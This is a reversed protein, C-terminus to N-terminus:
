ITNLFYLEVNKIKKWKINIWIKNKNEHSLFTSLYLCEYYKLIFRWKRALIREQRHRFM